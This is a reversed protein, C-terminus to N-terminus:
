GLSVKYVAEPEILNAGNKETSQSRILNMVARSEYRMSKWQGLLGKSSSAHRGIPLCRHAFILNSSKCCWWASALFGLSHHCEFDHQELRQTLMAPLGLFGDYISGPLAFGFAETMREPLGFRMQNRYKNEAIAQVGTPLRWWGRYSFIQKWFFYWRM